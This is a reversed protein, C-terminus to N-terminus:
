SRSQYPGQEGNPIEGNRVAIRTAAKIEARTPEDVSPAAVPQVRWVEGHPVEGQAVATRTEANVESRSRSSVFPTDVYSPRTLGVGGPISADAKLAAMTEAKVEARTKPAAADQALAANALAFAAVAATAILTKTAPM